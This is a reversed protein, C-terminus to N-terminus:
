PFFHRFNPVSHIQRRPKSLWDNILLLFEFMFRLRVFLYHPATKHAGQFTCKTHLITSINFHNFIHMLCNHRYLKIVAVVYNTHTSNLIRIGVQTRRPPTCANTSKHADPHHAHMQLSVSVVLYVNQNYYLNEPLM